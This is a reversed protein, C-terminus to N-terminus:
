KFYISKTTNRISVAKVFVTNAAPSGSAVISLRDVNMNEAIFAIPRISSPNPITCIPKDKFDCSADCLAFPKRVNKPPTIM